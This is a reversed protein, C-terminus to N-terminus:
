KKLSDIKSEKKDLAKVITDKKAKKTESIPAVTDKKVPKAVVVTDAKAKVEKKVSDVGSEDSEDYNGKKFKTSIKDVEIGAKKNAKADRKSPSVIIPMGKEVYEVLELINDNHIRICGHSVRRGLAGPSCTGHIGISDFGPVNLRIFYPGFAGLITGKGDGFDHKWSTADYIM